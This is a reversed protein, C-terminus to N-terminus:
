GFLSLFFFFDIQLGTIKELVLFLLRFNNRNKADTLESIHRTCSNKEQDQPRRLMLCCPKTKVELTFARGTKRGTKVGKPDRKNKPKQLGRGQCTSIELGPISSVACCHCCWIRLGVILRWPVGGEITKVSLGSELVQFPQEM